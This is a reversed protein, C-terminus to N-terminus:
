GRTYGALYGPLQVGDALQGDPVPVGATLELPIFGAWHPLDVDEPEEVLHAGRAKLSVESLEVAVIATKALEKRTAPRTDKSRGQAVHDILAAMATRKEEESRVVRATGHVVVSRYSASHHLWSRALVIGDILSITVGVPEADLLSFRGASSGHIYLTDGIRAHITPLVVPAGDRIFGVHCVLAEDIVAHVSARDYSARSTHRTPTSRETPIYEVESTESTESVDTRVTEGM